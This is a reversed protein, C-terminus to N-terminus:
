KNTNLEKCRLDYRDAGLRDGMKNMLDAMLCNSVVNDPDLELAKTLRNLAKELQNTRISLRALQNIVKVDEPHDKNLQVLMLIGQMPNDKPPIQTYCHALNLRHDINGPDISIAKEFAKVARGMCYERETQDYKEGLGFAYTTGALAWSEDTEELGAVEEAYNGSLAPYGEKFWESSIHKLIEIRLDEDNADTLEINYGEFMAYARQGMKKKASNLLSQFSTSEFNEVRSKEALIQSKPKRDCGLYLILFLVVISAITLVQSRSLM